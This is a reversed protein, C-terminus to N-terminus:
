LIFCNDLKKLFNVKNKNNRIYVNKNNFLFFNIIILIYISLKKKLNFLM